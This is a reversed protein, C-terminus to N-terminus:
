LTDGYEDSLPDSVVGGHTCALPTLEFICLFGESWVRIEVLGGRSYWAEGRLMVDRLCVVLNVFMHGDFLLSSRAYPSNWGLSSCYSRYRRSSKRSFILPTYEVVVDAERERIVYAEDLM